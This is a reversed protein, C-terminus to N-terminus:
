PIQPDDEFQFRSVIMENLQRNSNVIKLNAKIYDFSFDNLLPILASNIFSSTVASIGSFSLVVQFGAQFASHIQKYIIDGDQNSYCQDVHDLVNITVM